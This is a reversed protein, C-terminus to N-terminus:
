KPTFGGPPTPCSAATTGGWYVEDWDHGGAGVEFYYYLGGNAHTRPPLQGTTCSSVAVGNVKLKRDPANFSACGFSTTITDCTIFCMAATTGLRIRGSVIKCDVGPLDAGGDPGPEPGPEPGTPEPGPEPGTPEPGPEAGLPESGTPEPGPEPKTTTPEDAAPLDALPGDSPKDTDSQAGGAEGLVKTDLRVLKDVAADGADPQVPEDGKPLDSPTVVDEAADPEPAPNDSCANQKSCKNVEAPQSLNVCGISVPWLLAISACLVVHLRTRPSVSKLPLM